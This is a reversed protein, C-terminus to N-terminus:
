MKQDGQKQTNQIFESFKKVVMNQLGQHLFMKMFSLLGRFMHSIIKLKIELGPFQLWM